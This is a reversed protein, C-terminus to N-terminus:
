SSILNSTARAGNNRSMGVPQFGFLGLVHNVSINQQLRVYHRIGNWVNLDETLAEYKELESLITFTSQNHFNIIAERIGQDEM